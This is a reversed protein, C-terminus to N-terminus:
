RRNLDRQLAENWGNPKWKFGCKQCVNRPSGSGVFGTLLSFGRNTTQINTSNCKPCTIQNFKKEKLQTNNPITPHYKLVVEKAKLADCSTLEIIQKIKVVQSSNKDLLFSVDYNIGNINEMIVKQSNIPYGCHVCQQAKDSIEKQCEPCKILSM